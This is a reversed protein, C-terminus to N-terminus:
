FTCDQYMGARNGRLSQVERSAEKCWTTGACDGKAAAGGSSAFALWPSRETSREVPEYERCGDSAMTKQILHSIAVFNEPCKWWHEICICSGFIRSFVHFDVASPWFRDFYPCGRWVFHISEKGVKTGLIKEALGLRNKWILMIQLWIWSFCLCKRSTESVLYPDKNEFTGKQLTWKRSVDALRCSQPCNKSVELLEKMEADLIQLIWKVRGSVIMPFITTGKPHYGLQKLGGFVGKLPSTGSLFGIYLSYIPNIILPVMGLTGGNERHFYCWFRVQFKLGWFSTSDDSGVM